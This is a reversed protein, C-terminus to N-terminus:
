SMQSMSRRDFTSQSRNGKRNLHDLRPLTGYDDNYSQIVPLRNLYQVLKEFSFWESKEMKPGRSFIMAEIAQRETVKLELEECIKFVGPRTIPFPVKKKEAIKKIQQGMEQMQLYEEELWDKHSQQFKTM